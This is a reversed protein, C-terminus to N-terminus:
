RFEWTYNPNDLYLEDKDWMILMSYFGVKDNVYVGLSAYTVNKDIMLNYLKDYCIAM